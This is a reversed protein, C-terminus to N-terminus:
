FAPSMVDLVYVRPNESPDCDERIEQGPGSKRIRNARSEAHGHGFSLKRYYRNVVAQRHVRNHRSTKGGSCSM